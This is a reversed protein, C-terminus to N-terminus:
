LLSGKWPQSKLNNGPVIKRIGLDLIRVRTFTRGLCHLYCVSLVCHTITGVSPPDKQTWTGSFLWLHHLDNSVVRLCHLGVRATWPQLLTSLDLRHCLCERQASILRQTIERQSWNWGYTCVSASYKASRTQKEGDNKSGRAIRRGKRCRKSETWWKEEM